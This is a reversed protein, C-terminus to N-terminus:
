VLMIHTLNLVAFGVQFPVQVGIVVLLLFVLM